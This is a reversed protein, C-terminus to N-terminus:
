PIIKTSLCIGNEGIKAQRFLPQYMVVSLPICMYLILLNKPEFYFLSFIYIILIIAVIMGFIRSELNKGKTRFAKKHIPKCRRMSLSIRIARIFVYLLFLIGIINAAILYSKEM